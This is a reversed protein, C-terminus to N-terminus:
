VRKGSDFIQPWLDMPDKYGLKIEEERMTCYWDPLCLLAQSATRGRALGISERKRFLQEENQRTIVVKTDAVDECTKRFWGRRKEILKAAFVLTIFPPKREPFRKKGGSIMWHAWSTAPIEHEKLMQAGAALQPFLRSRHVKGFVLVTSRTGYVAEIAENYAAVMIQVCALDPTAKNFSQPGTSYVNPADLHPPRYGEVPREHLKPGVNGQAEIRSFVDNLGPDTPEDFDVPQAPALPGPTPTATHRAKPSFLDDDEDSYDTPVPFREPHKKMFLRLGSNELCGVEEREQSSPSLSRLTPDYLSVTKSSLAQDTTAATSGTDCEKRALDSKRPRGQLARGAAWPVFHLSPLWMRLVGRRMDFYGWVRYTTQTIWRQRDGTGNLRHVRVSRLAGCAHLKKIALSVTRKSVQAKYALQQLTSETFQVAYGRERELVRYVALTSKGLLRMDRTTLEHLERGVVRDDPAGRKWGSPDHDKLYTNEPREPAYRSPKACYRPQLDVIEM